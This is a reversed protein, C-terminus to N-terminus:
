PMETTLVTPVGQQHRFLGLTTHIERESPMPYFQSWEFNTAYLQGCTNLQYSPRPGFLTDTYM